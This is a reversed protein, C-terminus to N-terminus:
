KRDLGLAQRIFVDSKSLMEARANADSLQHALGEFEVYEVSKGAARLREAMLRAHGVDVNRDETGHFMLVPAVFAGANAAPSGARVHEGRGIMQDVRNFDTYESHDQRLRELDTPPAIAVIAKFLGPETVGSQLAAYGGYSWGFIALKGPAAIGQAVLWRGADDIDGIATRWSQFGNKRYWDVGYGASGRYNPQLVAFGRAAFFQVLWDFGWEDRTSPGGHPMVIAPLNKGNTGRPITLYGPIQTGDSAPFTIAKMEALPVGKLDPRLPLLEELTRTRKDYLYLMGPDTDSGALLLLKSEDESADLFSISPRGPLAKALGEGIKKLEPDFFEVQRRDTAYSAGVVRRKRGVRLLHDIDVDDHGVVLERAGSGDLKIRYLAQRGAGNGEFGYVADLTPDVAIPNFGLGIGDGGFTFRGLTNWGKQDAKRYVYDIFNRSYGEPTRPSFGMIRVHGEGDSIYEAADARAPEVTRRQMTVLNVAEVGLGEQKQVIRTGLDNDPVFQRTMLVSGPRDATWDIVSGGEWTIGMARTSTPVTIMAMNAGNSDLAVVRSAQGVTGLLNVKIGYACLLRTNSSWGCNDIHENGGGGRLIPKPQGGAVLDIVSVVEGVAGPVLIAAHTGDPSLSISSVDELAGFQRALDKLPIASQAYAGEIGPFSALIAFLIKGTRM